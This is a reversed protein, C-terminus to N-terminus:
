YLIERSIAYTTLKVDNKINLISHYGDNRFDVWHNVDKDIDYGLETFLDIFMTNRFKLYDLAKRLSSHVSDIYEYDKHSGDKFTVKFRIVYVYRSKLM